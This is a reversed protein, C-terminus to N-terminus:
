WNKEMTEELALVEKGMDFHLKSSSANDLNIEQYVNPNSYLGTISKCNTPKFELVILLDLTKKWKLYGPLHHHDSPTSVRMVMM